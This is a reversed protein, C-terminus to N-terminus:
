AFAIRLLLFVKDRAAAEYGAAQEADDLNTDNAKGNEAMETLLMFQLFANRKKDGISLPGEEGIAAIMDVKRRATTAANQNKAVVGYNAPNGEHNDGFVNAFDAYLSLIGDGTHDGHDEAIVGAVTFYKFFEKSAEYLGIDPANGRDIIGEGGYLPSLCSSYFNFIVGSFAIGEKSGSLRRAVQAVLVLPDQEIENLVAIVAAGEKRIFGRPITVNSGSLAASVKEAYARKVDAIRVLSFCDFTACFMGAVLIVINKKM